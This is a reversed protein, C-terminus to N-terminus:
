QKSRLGFFTLLEDQWMGACIVLYKSYIKEALQGQKQTYILWKRGIREVALVKTQELIQLNQTKLGEQKM